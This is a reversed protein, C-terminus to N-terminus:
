YVTGSYLVNFISERALHNANFLGDFPNSVM